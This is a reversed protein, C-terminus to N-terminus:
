GLAESRKRERYEKMYNASKHRNADLYAQSQCNPECFKQPRRTKPKFPKGCYQCVLWGDPVGTKKEIPKYGQAAKWAGYHCGYGAKECEIMDLSLKDLKKKKAM